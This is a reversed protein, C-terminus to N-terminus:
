LEAQKSFASYAGLVKFIYKNLNISATALDKKTLNNDVCISLLAKGIQTTQPPERTETNPSFSSHTSQLAFWTICFTFIGVQAAWSFARFHTSSPLLYLHYEETYEKGFNM